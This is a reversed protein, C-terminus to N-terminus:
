LIKLVYINWNQRQLNTVSLARIFRQSYSCCGVVYRPALFNRSCHFKILCDCEIRASTCLNACGDFNQLRKEFNAHVIYKKRFKYSSCDNYNYPFSSYAFDTANQVKTNPNIILLPIMCASIQADCASDRLAYFKCRDYFKCIGDWIKRCAGSKAWFLCIAKHLYRIPVTYCMEYTQM